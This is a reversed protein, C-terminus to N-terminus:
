FITVYGRPGARKGRYLKEYLFRGRFSWNILVTDHGGSPRLVTSRSAWIQFVYPKTGRNTIAYRILAGRPYRPCESRTCFRDTQIVISSDTLKVKLVYVVGPTTTQDAAVAADSLSTSIVAAVGLLAACIGATRRAPIVCAM